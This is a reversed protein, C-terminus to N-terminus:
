QKKEDATGKQIELEIIDWLSPGTKNIARVKIHCKSRGQPFMAAKINIAYDATQQGSKTTKVDDSPVSQWSLCGNTSIRAEIKGAPDEAPSEILGVVILETQLLGESKPGLTVWSNSEPKTIKCSPAGEWKRINRMARLVANWKGQYDNGNIDTLTWPQYNAGGAWYLFYMCGSAGETFAVEAHDQITEAGSLSDIVRDNIPERYGYYRINPTGDPVRSAQSVLFYKKYGLRKAEAIRERVKYSNYRTTFGTSCIPEDEYSALWESGNHNVVTRRKSDLKRVMTNWRQFAKEHQKLKEQRDPGYGAVDEIEDCVYWAVVADSGEIADLAAVEQKIAASMEEDSLNGHKEPNFSMQLLIQIGNAKAYQNLKKERALPYYNLMNFNALEVGRSTFDSFVKELPVTMVQESSCVYVAMMFHPYNPENFQIANVITGQIAFLCVIACFKTVM